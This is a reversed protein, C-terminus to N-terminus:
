PDRNWVYDVLVDDNFVFVLDRYRVEGDSVTMISETDLEGILDFYAQMDERRASDKRYLRDLWSRVVRPSTDVYEITVLAFLLLQLDRMEDREAYFHSGSGGCRTVPAADGPIVYLSHMGLMARVGCAHPLTTTVTVRRPPKGRIRDSVELELEILESDASEMRAERISGYFITSARRVNEILAERDCACSLDDAAAVPSSVFGALVLSAMPVLAHARIM